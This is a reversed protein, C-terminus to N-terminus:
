DEGYGPDVTEPDLGLLRAVAEVVVDHALQALEIRDESRLELPRRYIVVRARAGPQRIVSALPVGSSNVQDDPATERGAPPVDEISFDVKELEAPWREALEDVVDEVSDVFSEARSRAIPVDM